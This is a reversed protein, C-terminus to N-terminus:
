ERNPTIETNVVKICMYNMMLQDIGKTIIKLEWVLGGKDICIKCNCSNGLSELLSLLKLKAMQHVVLIFLM